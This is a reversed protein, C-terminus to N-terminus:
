LGANDLNMNLLDRTVYYYGSIGVKNCAQTYEKAYFQLNDLEIAAYDTTMLLASYFGAQQATYPYIREIAQLILGDTENLPEKPFDDYSWTKNFLARLAETKCWFSSGFPAMPPHKKDIPVTLGLEKYLALTSEYNNGWELGIHSAFDAHNPDPAYLLGLFPDADFAKFVSEVFERSALINEYGMYAFGEGVCEPKLHSTKKDHTICIYDYDFVVDRFSVLLASVDRGINPLVRVEVHKHNAFASLIKTKREESTTSIYVHTRAPLNDVYGKLTPLMTTDYIHMFIATKKKLVINGYDGKKDLIRALHLNQVLVSMHCTRILNKLILSRPYNTEEEIFQLLCAVTQQGTYTTYYDYDQFFARRKVFPCKWKKVSEVPMTILPNDTMDYYEERPMYVDWLFGNDEFYKTMYTEYLGVAKSYDPLQPLNEWFTRFCMDSLLPKRVAYFYSQVHEPVFGYPNSGYPDSTAFGPHASCGWFDLDRTAMENIMDAIDYFPGFITNNAILIEDYNELSDFGVYLLGTKVGWADFGENERILLECGTEEVRKKGELTVDGNSVVITRENVTSFNLLFQIVYDDVIGEKDFFAYIGLRKIKTKNTLTIKNSKRRKWAALHILEAGHKNLTNKMEQWYPSVTKQETFYVDYHYKELLDTASCYKKSVPVIEDVSSVTNLWESWETEKKEMEQKSSNSVPVGVLLYDCLSKAKSFIDISNLLVKEDTIYFFGIHYQKGNHPIGKDAQRGPYIKHADYIVVDTINMDALQSIIPESDKICVMVQFDKTEKLIEPSYITYSKWIIGQKHSDNDIVGVINYDNGYCEIFKDAFRGSGFVFIRKDNDSTLRTKKNMTLSGM